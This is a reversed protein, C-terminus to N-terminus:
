PGTAADHASTVRVVGDADLEIMYLDEPTMTKLIEAVIFNHAHGGGAPSKNCTCAMRQVTGGDLAHGVILPFHEGLRSLREATADSVELRGDIPTKRSAARIELLANM